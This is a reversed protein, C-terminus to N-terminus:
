RHLRRRMSFSYNTTFVVCMDFRLNLVPHILEVSLFRVLQTMSSGIYRLTCQHCSISNRYKSWKVVHNQQQNHAPPLLFSLLSSPLDSTFRSDFNAFADVTLPIRLHVHGRSSVLALKLQFSTESACLAV